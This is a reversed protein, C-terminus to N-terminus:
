KKDKIPDYEAIKKGDTSLIETIVRVPDDSTGTGRRTKTCIIVNTLVCTDPPVQLFDEM